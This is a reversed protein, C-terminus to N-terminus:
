LARGAARSCIGMRTTYPPPAAGNLAHTGRCTHCAATARGGTRAWKPPTGPALSDGDKLDWSYVRMVREAWNSNAEVFGQAATEAAAATLTFMGLAWVCLVAAALLLAVRPGAGPEERRRGM